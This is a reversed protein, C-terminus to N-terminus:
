QDLAVQYDGSLSKELLDKVDIPELTDLSVIEELGRYNIQSIKIKVIGRVDTSANHVVYTYDQPDLIEGLLDKIDDEGLIDGEITSIKVKIFGSEGDEDVEEIKLVCRVPLENHFPSVGIYKVGDIDLTAIEDYCDVWDSAKGKVVIRFNRCVDEQFPKNETEPSPVHYGKINEDDVKKTEM